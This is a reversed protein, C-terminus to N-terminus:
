LLREDDGRRLRAYIDGPRGRPRLHEFHRVLDAAELWRASALRMTEGHSYNYVYGGLRAVNDLAVLAADHASPVYEFSLTRIPRTLGALVAAEFGEVDIKCFAPEGYVAILEDLTSVEVVFADVLPDGVAAGAVGGAAVPEGGHPHVDALGEVLVVLEVAFLKVVGAGGPRLQADDFGL